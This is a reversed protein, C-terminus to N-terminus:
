GVSLLRFSMVSGKLALLAELVSTLTDLSTPGTITYGQRAEDLMSRKGPQSRYGSCSLFNPM